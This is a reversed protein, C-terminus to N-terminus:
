LTKGASVDYRNKRLLYFRLSVLHLNNDDYDSKLVVDLLNAIENEYHYGLGLREITIVLELIKPIENAEKIVTRVQELLVEMRERMHAQQLFM